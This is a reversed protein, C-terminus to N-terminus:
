PPPVLAALAALLGPESGTGGVGEGVENLLHVSAEDVQWVTWLTTDYRVQTDVIELM